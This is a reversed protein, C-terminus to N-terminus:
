NREKNSKQSRDKARQKANEQAQRKNDTANDTKSMQITDDDKEKTVFDSTPAEQVLTASFTLRVFCFRRRRCSM